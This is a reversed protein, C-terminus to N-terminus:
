GQLAPILSSLLVFNGMQARPVPERQTKVVKTQVSMTTSTGANLLELVLATCVGTDRFLQYWTDTHPRDRDQLEKEILHFPSNAM